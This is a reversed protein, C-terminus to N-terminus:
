NEWSYKDIAFAGYNGHHTMSVAINLKDKKLYFCPIGHDNKKLIIQDISEGSLEAFQMKARSYVVEHQTKLNSNNLLFTQSLYGEKKELRSISYVFQNSIESQTFCTFDDCIVKGQSDKENLKLVTCAFKKPAYFRKKYLQVQLKYASEKMSWLLWVMKDPRPYEHIYRQEKETFIKDLFRPRKWNSEAKALALDVIDNGIM